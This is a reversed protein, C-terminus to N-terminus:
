LNSFVVMNFLNLTSYISLYASLPFFFFFFFAILLVLLGTQHM